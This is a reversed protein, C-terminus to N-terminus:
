YRSDTPYSKNSGARPAALHLINPRGPCSVFNAGENTKTQKNTQKQKKNKSYKALLNVGQFNARRFTVLLFFFNLLRVYCILLPFVFVFTLYGIFTRLNQAFSFTVLSVSKASACLKASLRLPSPPTAGGCGGKPYPGTSM